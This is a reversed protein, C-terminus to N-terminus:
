RTMHVGNVQVSMAAIRSLPMRSLAVGLPCFFGTIPSRDQREDFSVTEHKAIRQRPIFVYDYFIAHLWRSCRLWDDCRILVM